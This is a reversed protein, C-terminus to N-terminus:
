HWLPKLITLVAALRLPLSLRTTVLLLIPLQALALTLAALATWPQLAAAAVDEAAFVPVQELGAPAPFAHQM